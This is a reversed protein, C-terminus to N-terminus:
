FQCPHLRYRPTDASEITIGGNVSEGHLYEFAIGVSREPSEAFRSQQRVQALAQILFEGWVPIRLPAAFAYEM